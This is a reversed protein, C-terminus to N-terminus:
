VLTASVDTGKCLFDAGSVKAPLEGPLDPHMSASPLRFADLVRVRLWFIGGPLKAFRKRLLPFM